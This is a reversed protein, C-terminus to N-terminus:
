AHDSVLAQLTWAAVGNSGGPPQLSPQVLLVREHRTSTPRPSRSFRCSATIGYLILVTRRARCGMALMRHHIHERDPEAIQRLISGVSRGNGPRAVSRRLLALASDAIPLAFLMLPVGTALATAGKQWGTIATAALVFGVLLSGSDGLFISAPAFNFM